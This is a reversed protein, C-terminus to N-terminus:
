ASHFVLQSGQSAKILGKGIREVFIKLTRQATLKITQDLEYLFYRM